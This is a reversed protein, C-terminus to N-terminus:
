ETIGTISAVAATRLAEVDSFRAERTSGLVVIVVPRGFGIDTIIALNGGALDTYGTKSGIVGPTHAVLNNTNMAQHHLGSESIFTRGSEATSTFVDPYKRWLYEYLMAIDRASGEGGATASSIDLGTENRFVSDLLGISRAKSNMRHIFVERAADSTSAHPAIHEGSARALARAADNSSSMLAFATLDKANWREGVLLGSDGEAFLDSPTITIVEDEALAERALLATMMKTISALPLREYENKGFLKRHAEIDWVFAAHGTLSLGAFPNPREAPRLEVQAAASALTEPKSGVARLVSPGALLALLAVIAALQSAIILKERTIRRPPFADPQM